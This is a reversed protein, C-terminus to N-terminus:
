TIVSENSVKRFCTECQFQNSSMVVDQRRKLEESIQRGCNVLSSFIILIDDHLFLFSIDCFDVQSEKINVFM